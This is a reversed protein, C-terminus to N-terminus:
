GKAFRRREIVRCTLFAFLASVSVFYVCDALSIIGNAFDGLRAASPLWGLLSQVPRLAASGSQPLIYHENLYLFVNIGLTVVAASVQHECLASILTGVALMSVGLLYYGLWVTAIQAVSVQAWPSILLPYLLTLGMSLALMVCAAGLKGLVIHGVRVPSTLLLQDTRMRREEAFLRMTLLPSILLFPLQMGSFLLNMSASMEQGINIFVYIIGSLASYMMLFIYGVATTFYGHLEHRFVASM